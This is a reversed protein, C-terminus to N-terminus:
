THMHYSQIYQYLVKRIADTSFLCLFVKCCLPMQFEEQWEADTGEFGSLEAFRRMESLGLRRDGDKPLEFSKQSVYSGRLFSLLLKSFCPFSVPEFLTDNHVSTIM